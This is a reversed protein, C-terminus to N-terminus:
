SNGADRAARWAWYERQRALGEVADHLDPFTAGQGKELIEPFHSPHGVHVMAIPKQLASGHEEANAIHQIFNATNMYAMLPMHFPAAVVADIESLEAVRRVAEMQREADFIDGMDLPNGLKFVGARGYSTIEALLEEPFPPFEFGFEHALDALMICNGGSGSILGLRPGRMPPLRLARVINVTEAYPRSVRLVGAQRAAADTFRDDSSIAATHSKAAQSSTPYINSKYLIIPKPSRRAVDFFEKARKFGEVHIYIVATAPDDIFYTLYDVEDLTLKNGGSIIASAGLRAEKLAYALFFGVTGSQSFIGVDGKRFYGADMPSFPAAFGNMLNLVGQCNPGVFFFDHRQAAALIEDELGKREDGYETLGASMVVGRHIGKAASEAILGPLLHSPTLVVLVDVAEPLDAVSAYIPVGRVTGPQRGIGYVKGQYGFSELNILINQALNTPSSSLGAIAVSNPSLLRQM